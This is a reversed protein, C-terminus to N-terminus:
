ELAILCVWNIIIVSEQEASTELISIVETSAAASADSLFMSTPRSRSELRSDTANLEKLDNHGM